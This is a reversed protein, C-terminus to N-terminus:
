QYLRNIQFDPLPCHGPLRFTVKRNGDWPEFVDSAQARKLFEFSRGLLAQQAPWSVGCEESPFHNKRGRQHFPMM